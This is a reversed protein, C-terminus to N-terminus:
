VGWSEWENGRRRVATGKQAGSELGGEIGGEVGSEICYWWLRPVDSTGLDGGAGSTRRGSIKERPRDKQSIDKIRPM